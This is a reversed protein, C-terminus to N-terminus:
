KHTTSYNKKGIELVEPKDKFRYVIDSAIKRTVEIDVIPAPYNKGVEFDYLTQEILSLKWPEHVLESPIHRLEPCWKKIFLGEPDHKISNKIPNYIRIVHIGTCGAQMQLQPYHIGPEYDLFNRALHHAAEQWDQWLNFVFFSLLMARMRFNVFGTQTLCRMGADIIPIGTQGNEWAKIYAKNTEKKLGNYARNINEFEMRCESEFKQIFHCHWQLRSMYNSLARKHTATDYNATIFQYVMRISINGYTIYPSLRSCSKRSLEPKSIHKSYNIYRSKIFSELYRWAYSEGGRQFNSNPETISDPLVEGKYKEYFEDLLKLSPWDTNSIFYPKAYIHAQWREEWGIRNKLGRTVAFTKSEIWTIQHDICFEKVAIDREFTLRNGIEQHSFITQLDYFDLFPKLVSLVEQHFYYIQYTHSKLKLNMETLSEYVFRWHRTDSDPYAMVSPEFFYFLFFPIDERQARFIPEHDIFRLDRKLWVINVKQKTL